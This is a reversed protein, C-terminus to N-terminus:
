TIAGVAKAKEIIPLAGLAEVSSKQHFILHQQVAAMTMEACQVIEGFTEAGDAGPFFAEFISKAQFATAHGFELRVDVRGPRILAPDLKEVHNTTMFVIWGERSAAGDLANLVGSFSLSNKIDSNKDRQDFTSDADELLIASRPPVSSLAHLFGRDDMSTALNVIYLDMKFHSVIGRILTTKGTGPIGHLLYGRRWPIGRTSYWERNDLFGSVDGVMNDVQGAPLFVSSLPRGDVGDVRRFGDYGSFVYIDTRVEREVLSLKRAEEILARATTQKRAVIRIQFSERTFLSMMGGGNPDQGPAQRNRVLWIPRRQFFFFHHGPAPTLIIEPMQYQPESSSTTTPNCAEPGISNGTRKRLNGYHDRYTTVSLSRARRSYPQMSLWGALWFFAPDENTIDLTIIFRSQVYHYVKLPLSRAYAVIATLIGLVLGGQLFQNNSNAILDYIHHFFSRLM